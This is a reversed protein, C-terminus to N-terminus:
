YYVIVCLCVCVRVRKNFPHRHVSSAFLFYILIFGFILLVNWSRQLQDREDDLHINYGPTYIKWFQCNHIHKTKNKKKKSIRNFQRNMEFWVLEFLRQNIFLYNESTHYSFAIALLMQFSSSYFCFCHIIQNQLTFGVQNDVVYQHPSITRRIRRWWWLWHLM